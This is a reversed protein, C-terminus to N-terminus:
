RSEPKEIKLPDQIVRAEVDIVNPDFSRSSSADPGASKFNTYFFTSGFATNSTRIIKQVLLGKGILVLIHRLGPLMFIFGIFKLTLFPLLFLTAGLGILMLHTQPTILHQAEKLNEFTPKIMRRKVARLVFTGLSATILYFALALLFGLAQFLQITLYAEAVFGILLILRVM